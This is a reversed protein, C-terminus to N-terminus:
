NQPMRAFMFREMTQGIVVDANVSEAYSDDVENSWVFHFEEFLRSFWWSLLPRGGKHFCSNAFAVAKKQIPAGDTQWICRTGLHGGRPPEIVEIERPRLSLAPNTDDSPASLAEYLPTGLMRQALDGSRIETDNFPVDDLASIGFLQAVHRAILYSGYTSQHSDLRPVCRSGHARFLSLVSFYYDKKEFTAEIQSLLDTPTQIATPFYEPLSSIKEPVIFQLYTRGSADHRKVRELLLSSWQACLEETSNKDRQYRSLVNNSGETLYIYGERGLLASGDTSVTGVPVNIYSLDSATRPKEPAVSPDLKSAAFRLVSKTPGTLHESKLLSAILVKAQGDDANHIVELLTALSQPDVSM